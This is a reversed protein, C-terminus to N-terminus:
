DNLLTRFTISIRRRRPIKIGQIQDNKRPSISHKWDFRSPGTMIAISRKPLVIEVSPEADHTFKMAWSEILSITAITKGFYDSRDTHPSIGQSRTDDVIYENVIIQDPESEFYGNLRLSEAIRSLEPPAPPATGRGAARGSQYDYKSGYHQTRRQLDHNWPLADISAVCHDHEDTTLYEDIVVLGDPLHQDFLQM